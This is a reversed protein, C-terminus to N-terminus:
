ILIRLHDAPVRVCDVDDWGGVTSVSIDLMGDEGVEDDCIEVVEGVKTMRKGDLWANGKTTYRVETSVLLKADRYMLSMKEGV